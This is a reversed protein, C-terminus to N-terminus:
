PSPTKLPSRLLPAANPTSGVVFTALSTAFPEEATREYAVGRVFAIHPTLKYCHAEAILDAGAEAARLYDIRLDLTAIAQMIPLSCFVALGCAEDMVTTIVGGFVVGRVPDGVLEPRFPLRLRAVCPGVDIVRIGLRGSHPIHDVLEQRDDGFLDALAYPGSM